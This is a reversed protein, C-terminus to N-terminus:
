ANKTGFFVYKVQKLEKKNLFLRKQV